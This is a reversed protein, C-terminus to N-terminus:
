NGREALELNPMGVTNIILIPDSGAASQNAIRVTVQISRVAARQVLSLGSTNPLNIANGDADLYVFFADAGTLNQMPGPLIRTRVASTFVWYGNSDTGQVRDEVLNGNADFRFSVKSPAPLAPSADVFSYLTLTTPTAVALAPDPDVRGSVANNAATRIVKSVENIVNSAVGNRTTTANSNTTIRAVNVFLSGVIALVIGTIMMSVLLEVLSLGDDNAARLTRLRSALPMM